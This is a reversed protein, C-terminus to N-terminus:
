EDTDALDIVDHVHTVSYAAAKGTRPIREVVVDVVFGKKFVNEDEERIAHKIRAEALDSGYMLPLDKDSISNVIVREGSKKGAPANKTNSQIFVMLVREHKTTDSHTLELLHRSAQQEITKLQGTDFKAAVKIQRQKDEIVIAELRVKGKPDHAIAKVGDLMDKVESQSADSDRGGIKAYKALRKGWRVVFDEVTLIDGLHDVILPGWVVLEAIISGATVREVFLDAEGSLDPRHESLYRRYQRGLSDFTAAFEGIEIPKSHQIVIRILPADEGAM